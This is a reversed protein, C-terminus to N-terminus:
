PAVPGVVCMRQELFRVELGAAWLEFCPALADEPGLQSAYLPWLVFGAVYVNNAIAFVADRLVALPSSRDVADLLVDSVADFLWASPDDDGDLARVRSLDPVYEVSVERLLEVLEDDAQLVGELAQLHERAVSVADGGRVRGVAVQFCAQGPLFSGASAGYVRRVRRFVLDGGPIKALVSELGGGDPRFAQFLGVLEAPDEARPNMGAAGSLLRLVARISDDGGTTGGVRFTM